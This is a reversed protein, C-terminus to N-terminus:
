RIIQTIQDSNMGSVIVSEKMREESKAPSETEMKSVPLSFLLNYVFMFFFFSESSSFFCCIFFLTLVTFGDRGCLTRWFIWYRGTCSQEGPTTLVLPDKPDEKSGNEFMEEASPFALMIPRRNGTEENIQKICCIHNIFM